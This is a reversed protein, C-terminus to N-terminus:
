EGLSFEQMLRSSVPNEIKRSASVLFIQEEVGDLGGLDFLEGRDVYPAASAAPAPLVGMGEVGLLMQLATDQTEVVTPMSIGSLRLFHEVDHRLKSHGTPLIVPVSSLSDPFGESLERFRKSGYVRIPTRAVRKSYVKAADSRAPVYNSVFLDIRHHTLERMLEDAKGELISISCPAISLANQVLKVLVNKPISDLAGIQVHLHQPSRRDQIVEVLEGGMKFIDRAYEVVSRGSETLVLRKAKREFLSVNLAAELQKLQASLAPQGIGLKVSAESISGRTAIVYFYYLHHFNLWVTNGSIKVQM